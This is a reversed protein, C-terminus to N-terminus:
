QTVALARRRQQQGSRCLGQDRLWIQPVGALFAVARVSFHTNVYGLVDLLM